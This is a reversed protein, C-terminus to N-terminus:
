RESGSILEVLEEALADKTRRAWPLVVGEASLICAESESSGIAAPRNPVVYDANKAIMKECARAEVQEPPGDEVAFVLVIQDRRKKAAIGAAVDETPILRIVVPGSSRHIKEASRAEPRFDGVAAAMVLADCGVFHEQLADKLEAVSTFRVLRCGAPVELAVPGSLLTVDHGARVAAAAVAYGMRGSSANTIFRVPDIHERTPGATVLVQM